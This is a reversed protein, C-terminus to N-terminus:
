AHLYVGALESCFCPPQRILQKHVCQFSILFNLVTWDCFLFPEGELLLSAAAMHRSKNNLLSSVSFCLTPNFYFYIYQMCTYMIYTM